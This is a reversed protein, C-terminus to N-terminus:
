GRVSTVFTVIAVDPDVVCDTILVSCTHQNPINSINKTLDCHEYFNMHGKNKSELGKLQYITAFDMLKLQHLGFVFAM